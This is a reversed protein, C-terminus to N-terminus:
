KGFGLLRVIPKVSFIGRDFTFRQGDTTKLVFRKFILSKNFAKVEAINERPISMVGDFGKVGSASIQFKADYFVNKNTVIFDGNYKSGDELLLYLVWTRLVIEGRPLELDM